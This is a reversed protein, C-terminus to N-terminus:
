CYVLTRYDILKEQIYEGRALSFINAKVKVKEDINYIAQIEISIFMKNIYEKCLAVLLARKEYENLKQTDATEIVANIYKVKNTLHELHESNYQSKFENVVSEVNKM